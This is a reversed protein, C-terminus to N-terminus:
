GTLELKMVYWVCLDLICLLMTFVAYYESKKQDAMKVM